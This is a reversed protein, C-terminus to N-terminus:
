RVLRLGTQFIHTRFGEYLYFTEGYGYYRWEATLLVHKQMPLSLRALPQYFRTPRSGSSVFMSGGLSLKPTMGAYAPLGFDFIANALHANDRYFSRQALSLLEPELYNIDSRLTSRTYEGIVSVRKGGGPTWFASLSTDDSRFKYNIGPSPNRNDMLSNTLSLSLTSSVEYRAGARSRIYDHLSTRFYTKDSSAGEIDYNLRLRQTPRFTVGGLGVERRLQGSELVNLPTIPPAGTTAADGWVYRFGGRLTLKSTLDFMVDTQEQSYNTILRTPLPNSLNQTQNAALILTQSLLGFAANHLRDTMWSQVIRVRRLPRIEAGLTGSTHPMKADGAAIDSQGSYFLLPNAIVFLGTNNQTFNTTTQPESYLLTGYVDAWSVPNGTVLVRSYISSGTINYLQQGSALFLQRGIYPTFRNGLERQDDYARQGDAFNTGGQELTVHFRRFEMRLGGRWNDTHDDYSDRVPYENTAGFVITSIGNGYGGDHDYAFYPIFRKGPRLDLQVSALRRKVDFSRENLMIGNTQLLPDAFSPLYDFYALNRYDVSLHYVGQKRASLYATNYPDGWNYGRLDLRDFLRSKPDQITFDIGFLRPGDNLNVISRYTNFSGRVDTSTRYGIDLSGSFNPEGAPKPAEASKEEKKEEKAVEAPAEAPKAQETKPTDAPKPAAAPKPAEQAVLPLALLFVILARM